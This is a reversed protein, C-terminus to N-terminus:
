TIRAARLQARVPRSAQQILRKYYADRRDNPYYLKAGADFLMEVIATYAAQRQAAGGSARSGHVAWGLPSSHHHDDFIELPANAALLLRVNTAQGFWAAQHLPTGGDLGRATLSAGATILLRVPWAENRGAMDALLRDEEPNGTNAVGPHDCLIQEASARDRGSLAVALRDAPTLEPKAGHMKLFSAIEHFGRRVAHVYATKDGANRADVESGAYVLIEVAALRRRRVAVHLPTEQLVGQRADVSAGDALLRRLKRDGWPGYKTDLLTFLDM